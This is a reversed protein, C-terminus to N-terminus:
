RLVTRIVSSCTRDGFTHSIDFMECYPMPIRRKYEASQYTCLTYRPNGLPAVNAQGVVFLLGSLRLAM